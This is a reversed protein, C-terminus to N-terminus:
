EGVKLKGFWQKVRQRFQFGNGMCGWLNMNVAILSRYLWDQSEVNKSAIVKQLLATELALSLKKTQRM